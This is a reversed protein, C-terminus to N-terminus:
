RHLAFRARLRRSLVRAADRCPGGDLPHAYAIEPRLLDIEHAAVGFWQFFPVGRGDPHGTACIDHRVYDDFLSATRTGGGIEDAAEHIEVSLGARVLLVAATLGNPGSGVVSVDIPM